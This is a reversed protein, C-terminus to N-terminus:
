PMSVMMATMRVKGKAMYKSPAAKRGAKSFAEATTTGRAATECGKM